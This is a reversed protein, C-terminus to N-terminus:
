LSPTKGTEAQTPIPHPNSKGMRSAIERLLSIQSDLELGEIQSLVQNIAEPAKYRSPMDVVRDGMEVAWAYWVLLQNNAALAGYARSYETDENNVLQRQIALQDDDSLDFYDVLLLPALNPDAVTPAAPTISDGMKKYIFYLLALRDDTNLTNLKLYDQYLKRSDESLLNSTTTAGVSM